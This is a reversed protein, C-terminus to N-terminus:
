AARPLREPEAPVPLPLPVSRGRWWRRVQWLERLMRVTTRLGTTSATSDYRVGVPVEAVPIGSRACATLLECDFGFGDCRLAPLVREATAAAMGKLGAQTDRLTVPLLLRTSAGFVWSQIHRRYAYGLAKVPVTVRSDPHARSGAVVAAGAKLAAAVRLIDAFPYALDVDTFIRYAGRAALMGTRVAHGKGRNNPYDVVRIAPGTSGPLQALRDATGDTCGDLVFVAEWPDSEAARDAIFERVADWTREVLPGPNYAPLVLSTLPITM